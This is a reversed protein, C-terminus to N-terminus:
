PGSPAPSGRRDADHEIRRQPDGIVGEHEAVLGGRRDDRRIPRRGFPAVIEPSAPDRDDDHGGPGTPDLQVDGEGNKPLLADPRREHLTARAHDRREETAAEGVAQDDADSRPHEPAARVGDLIEAHPLHGPREPQFAPRNV